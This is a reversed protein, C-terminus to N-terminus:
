RKAAGHLVLTKTAQKAKKTGKPTFAVTVKVKVDHHRALARRTATALKLTLTATTATAITKTTKALGKGSASVKGAGLGGVTLKLASATQSSKVVGLACPTGMTIATRAVKGNQGTLQADAVQTAACVNASSVVLIGHKGGNVHLDFTTFPADPLGDFTTVLRNNRVDSSATVDVTVGDATLPMFLKPLTKFVHKTKPDIREGRVFYVPSKLPDRLLSQTQVSGVISAAPCTNTAAEAPECLANANGPDLALSLPLVVQVSDSNADGRNTALHALLAPHKDDTTQGKGTMTLSLKPAFGLDGCGIMGFPVSFVGSAGDVSTLGTTVQAPTCNTPSVMFGARDINVVVQRLRLPIGQIITPLPDSVVTAHADHPDVSLAARVVVDGLDFPGSQGATPVVIALGFPAGKYPGTLYVNGGLALPAGGAGSQVSTHGVLSAPDCSGASAQADPCEPVDGIHALLGPPLTVSVGALEQTQDPRILTLDFSSSGGAAPVAVGAHLTPSFTRAQCGDNITMPDDSSVPTDSAWSIVDIHSTYTGCATPTSLPAQSGGRFRLHLESFPLQPTNDFTGTVQGTVPDLDIRGPLKLYFGPGKIAIYLAVLSGFPNDAQKALIVDGELPDALLPTQVEVTGIKSSNPCTPADNTGLGIQAPSCAGLGAASAPSVSMGAPFRIAVRRVHATALANPNDNQPVKVDVDLGTPADAVHSLPQATVTPKFDLQDCGSFLFPTGDLSGSGSVSQDPHEWSNATILPLRESAGCATPSSLFPRPTTQVAIPSTPTAGVETQGTPDSPDAGSRLGDHTHAAPVGWLIVDIGFVPRSQSAEVSLASIGFDTPRIQPVITIPVGFFIFAFEAPEGPKPVMNYLGARLAGQDPATRIGITGIQAGLPCLADGGAPPRLQDGTCTGVAQPNGVLGPPLDVRVDRVSGDPEVANRTLNVHEKFTIKTEFDPHAGAQRVPAGSPDELATGASTFGFDALATATFGGAITLLSAMVAGLTKITIRM